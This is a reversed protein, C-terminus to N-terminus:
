SATARAAERMACYIREVMLRDADLPHEIAGSAYLVHVGAEVMKPTPAEVETAPAKPQAACASM